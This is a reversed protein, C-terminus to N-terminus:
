KARVPCITCSAPTPQDLRQAVGAQRGEGGFLGVRGDAGNLRQPRFAAIPQGLVVVLAIDDDFQMKSRDGDALDATRALLDDVDVALRHIDRHVSGLVPRAM